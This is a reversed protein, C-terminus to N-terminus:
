ISIKKCLVLSLRKIVNEIDDFVIGSMGLKLAADVNENKDDLFVCEEPVLNYREFLINYIEPEPKVVGVEHSVVMGDVYDFFKMNNLAYKFPTVGYNSLLYVRYGNDKLYRILPVSHKFEKVITGINELYLRLEEEIDSQILLARKVYEDDSIGRDHENWLAQNGLTVNVLLQKKEESIQMNAIFNKWDFELLVEGIDLIVNKIIVKHYALRRSGDEMYVIGCKRFDNKSLFRQMPINDEHTDMRLDYVGSKKCENVAYSICRAAIGKGHMLEGVAIRHVVGYKRDNRWSGDEIINYNIDNEIAFYFVAGIEGDEECVYCKESAIDQKILQTPPYGEGWQNANGQEKMYERAQSYIHIVNEVDSNIAKRIQMSTM